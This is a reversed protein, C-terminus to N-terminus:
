GMMEEIVPAIAEGWVQFGAAIPHLRDGLLSTDVEGDPGLFRAGIDMFRITKGDALAALGKNAQRIVDMYFPDELTGKKQPGRPFIAMLLIRTKPMRARIIDIIKKVAATIEEGTNTPANNAGILLVLVRPDMGDIDGNQIRWIVNQTADSGVGLNVPDHRQFFKNWLELNEVWRRTISDGLFVLRTTKRNPLAMFFARREVAHEDTRQSPTLADAHTQPADAM